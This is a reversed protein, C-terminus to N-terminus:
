HRSSTHNEADIPRFCPFKKTCSKKDSTRADDRDGTQSAAHSGVSTFKLVRQNGSIVYSPSANRLL